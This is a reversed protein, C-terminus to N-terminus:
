QQRQIVETIVARMTVSTPIVLVGAM